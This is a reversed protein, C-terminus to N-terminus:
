NVSGKKLEAMLAPRQGKVKEEQYLTYSEVLVVAALVLGSAFIQIEYGAGMCMLGNFLTTLMIVAIMSRFIDGTGGAMSTGGIITASIVLMQSSEGLTPVASSISMGLLAGGLSATFGSLTFALILYLDTNLGALWATEKNGGVLYFGRGFKTYTVLVFFILVITVTILVRPPLFGFKPTELWDALTFDNVSLASGKSILFILGQVITMTGLTVIFAHIKAKAVLLGNILGVLSGTLIAALLSGWWGLTPQLGVVVMAGLTLNSGISLDLQGCILVVTFGIAVMANLSMGKLITIMNYRNLFNPAFLSMFIFIIIFILYIRNHDLKSMIKKKDMNHM